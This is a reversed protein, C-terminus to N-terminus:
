LVIFPVGHCRVFDTMLGNTKSNGYYEKKQYPEYEIGAVVGFGSYMAFNRLRSDCKYRDHDFTHITSGISYPRDRPAAEALSATTAVVDEPAKILKDAHYFQGSGLPPPPHSSRKNGM